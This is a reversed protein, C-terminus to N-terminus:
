ELIMCSAALRGAGASESASASPQSSALSEILRAGDDDEFIEDEDLLLLLDPLFFNNSDEALLRFRRPLCARRLFVTIITSLACAFDFFSGSFLSCIIRDRMSSAFPRRLSSDTHSFFTTERSSFIVSHSIRKAMM